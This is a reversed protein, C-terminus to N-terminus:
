KAALQLTLEGLPPLFGDVCRDLPATNAQKAADTVLCLSYLGGEILPIRVRIRGKPAPESAASRFTWVRWAAGGHVISHSLRKGDQDFEPADVVLSGGNPDLPIEIPKGDPPFTLHFIKAGYGYAEVIVDAERTGRPVIAAFEGNANTAFPIVVMPQTDTPRVIVNAGGVPGGASFVRGALIDDKRVVLRVHQTEGNRLQVRQVESSRMYASAQLTLRGPPYGSLEFVGHEVKVDVRWDSGDDDVYVIAREVPKGADDVVEGVLRTEPLEIDVRAKGDNGARVDIGTLTRKLSPSDSTVTIELWERKPLLGRFNGETDSRMSVRTEGSEGGFIVTGAIGKKGISLRGRVDITPIDAIVDADRGEIDFKKALWRAGDDSEVHLKYQGERLDQRKWVGDESARRQDVIQISGKASADQILTLRWPRLTPDLPPIVRISLARLPALVLPDLLETERDAALKVRVSPSVLKGAVATVNYDGPGAGDLQFFGRSNAKAGFSRMGKRVGESAAEAIEVPELLVKVEALDIKADRPARVSGVLTTAQRLELVGFDRREGPKLSVDWRFETRYRQARLRLDVQGAPVECSWEGDRVPCKMETVAVRGSESVSPSSQFRVLMEKPVDQGKPVKITGAITATPWMRFPIEVTSDDLTRVIPEHWLGPARVEIMWTGKPTDYFSLLGPAEITGERVQSRDRGEVKIPTLIVRVEARKFVTGQRFSVPVRLNTASVSTAFGVILLSALSARRLSAINVM